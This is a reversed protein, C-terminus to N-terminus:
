THNSSPRFSKNGRDPRLPVPSCVHISENSSETSQRCDLVLLTGVPLPSHERNKKGSRKQKKYVRGVPPVMFSDFFRQFVVVNKKNKAPKMM